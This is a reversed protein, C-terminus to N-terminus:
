VGFLAPEGPEAIGGAVASLVVIDLAVVEVDVVSSVEVLAEFFWAEAESADVVVEACVEADPRGLSDPGPILMMGSGRLVPLMAVGVDDPMKGGGTLAAASEIGVLLGKVAPLRMVTLSVTVTM